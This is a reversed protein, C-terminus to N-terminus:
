TDVSLECVSVQFSPELILLLECQLGKCPCTIDCSQHQSRDGTIKCKLISKSKCNSNSMLTFMIMEKNLLDCNSINEFRFTMHVPSTFRCNKTAIVAPEIFMKYVPNENRLLECSSHNSDTLSPIRGSHLDAFSCSIKDLPM